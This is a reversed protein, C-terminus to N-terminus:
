YMPRVSLDYMVNTGIVLMQPQELAYSMLSPDCVWSASGSAAESVM